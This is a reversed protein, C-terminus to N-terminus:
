KGHFIGWLVLWTFFQGVCVAVLAVLPRWSARHTPPQEARWLKVSLVLAVLSLVHNWPCFPCLHSLHVLLWWFRLTFAFGVALWFALTRVVHHRYVPPLRRGLELWLACGLYFGLGLLANPVWFARAQPTMLVADCDIGETWSCLGTGPTVWGARLALYRWSLYATDLVTLALTARLAAEIRAKAARPDTGENPSPAHPPPM